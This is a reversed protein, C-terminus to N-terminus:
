PTDTIEAAVTDPTPAGALRAFGPLALEIGRRPGDFAQIVFRRREGSHLVARARSPPPDGLATRPVYCRLGEAAVVAGHSTFREVQADIEDGLRHNLLFAIFPTPDNVAEPAHHRLLRRRRGRRAPTPEFADRTAEAVAAEATVPVPEPAPVAAREPRGRARIPKRESFIWGVQPVPKAGVLRRAEFLWPYQTQFEQFSDNSLVTGHVRDAVKLLFGDGRGIAGAPPSVVEGAAEAAQFVARESADIRYPFSADVVVTMVIGPHEDRYARVGARLQAFSPVTRGETALNSGDVVVHRDPSAEEHAV